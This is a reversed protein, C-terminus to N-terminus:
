DLYAALAAAHPGDPEEALSRRALEPGRPDGLELYALALRARVDGALSAPVGLALAQEFARAAADPSRLADQQVRGLVVAALPAEAADPHRSVIRELPAVADSPHGSLRAVDALLLLERPGADPEDTGEDGLEEDARDDADSAALERWRPARPARSPPAVADSSAPALPAAIAAVEEPERPASEAAVTESPPTPAPAAVWAEDGALLDWTRGDRAEVRVHGREVSVRVGADSRELRFATGIVDVTALGCDFRWHRPGGPTVHVDVAGRTLRLALERADNRTPVVEAGPQLAVRSGDAFAITEAERASRATPASGDALALFAPPGAAPRLGQALVVIGIVLASAGLVLRPDLRPARGGRVRPEVGRWVRQIRREDLRADVREALPRRASM